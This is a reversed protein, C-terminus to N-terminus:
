IYYSGRGKTSKSSIINRRCESEYISQLYTVNKLLTFEKLNTTLLRMEDSWSAFWQPSIKSNQNVGVDFIKEDLKTRCKRRKMKENWINVKKKTRFEENSMSSKFIIMRLIINMSSVSLFFFQINHLAM